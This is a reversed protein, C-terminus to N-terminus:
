SKMNKNAVWSTQIFIANKKKMKYVTLTVQNLEREKAADVGMLTRDINFVLAAAKTCYFYCSFFCALNMRFNNSKIGYGM